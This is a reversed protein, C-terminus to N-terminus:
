KQTVGAVQPIRFGIDRLESENEILGSRHLGSEHIQGANFRKLCEVLRELKTCANMVEVSRALAVPHCQRGYKRPQFKPAM